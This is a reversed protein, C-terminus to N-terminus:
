LKGVSRVAEVIVAPAHPRTGYSGNGNHRVSPRAGTTDLGMTEFVADRIRLYEPSDLDRPRPLNVPIIRSITAPRQSMVVIHDALQVSEEVDHTVFLVTKSERKWIDIVEARMRLRTLFDLAGFPEDMFLVDPTAALARAIEVRQKMGGSIERPYSAAFGELGTMEIYHAVIRRREIPSEDLLGFGINDAVTLWPFLGNEQFIFIRRRDPKVVPVDDIRVEGRVAKLFGGVINLLTSKGCGSPGVICIFEGARVSLNVAELVSIKASATSDDLAAGNRANAFSMWLDRILIKSQGEM